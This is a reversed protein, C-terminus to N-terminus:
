PKDDFFMKYRADREENVKNLMEMYERYVEAHKRERFVSYFIIGITIGFVVLTAVFGWGWLSTWDGAFLSVVCGVVLGAILTGLVRAYRGLLKTINRWLYGVDNVISGIADVISGTVPVNGAKWTM